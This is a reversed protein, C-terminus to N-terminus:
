TVMESWFLLSKRRLRPLDLGTTMARPTVVATYTVYPKHLEGNKKIINKQVEAAMVDLVNAPEKRRGLTGCEAHQGLHLVRRTLSRKPVVLKMNNKTKTEYTEMHIETLLDEEKLISVGALMGTDTTTSRVWGSLDLSDEQAEGFTWFTETANSGVRRMKEVMVFQPQKKLFSALRPSSIGDKTNYNIWDKLQSFSVYEINRETFATFVKEITKIVRVKGRAM